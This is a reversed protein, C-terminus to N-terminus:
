YKSICHGYNLWGTKMKVQAQRIRKYSKIKYRVLIVLIRLINKRIQETNM